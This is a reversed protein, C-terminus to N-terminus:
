VCFRNKFYKIDTGFKGWVNIYNIVFREYTRKIYTPNFNQIILKKALNIVDQRFNIVSSNLHCFRILQSTFVGYAPQRPINSSLDPYNIVDFDFDQRKDFSKYIFRGRHVSITMDLYNSKCKSLNTKDLIMSTPYMDKYLNDFIGKDNLVICDDQYRCTDNLLRANEINGTELLVNQIYDEEYVQLFLNAIHPACNIGMPIGIIQRYITGQYEIFSNDIFYTVTICAIIDDCSLSLIKKSKNITFYANSGSISMYKKNQSKKLNFISKVFKGICQKLEIQPIMTYLSKFDYTNISKYGTHERNSYQLIELVPDRNDIIFNTNVGTNKRDMLAKNKKIKLLSKLVYGMKQSLPELASGKASTIFRHAKPNKHMKSSWYLFPMSDKPKLGWKKLFTVHKELITEKDDEVVEFNNSKLEKELVELYYKKCIISVNNSAKDTPVFVFNKQLEELDAKNKKQSLVHNYHYDKLTDLKSKIKELLTVKWATFCQLPTNTKDSIKQVYSDLGSKINKLILAKNPAPVERFNLGKRLLNRLKDNEVINLNGTFIHGANEDVYNSHVSNRCSCTTPIKDADDFITQKYNVISSRITQPYQYTVTPHSMKDNDVPFMTSVDSCKMINNMNICDMFKNTYKLVLYNCNDIKPKVSSLKHFCLDKIIYPLYEYYKCQSYLDFHENKESICITVELFLSKVWPNKMSM